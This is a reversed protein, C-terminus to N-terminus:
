LEAALRNTLESMFAIPKNTRLRKLSKYTDDIKQKQNPFLSIVDKKAKIQHYKNKWLFYYAGRGDKFEYYLISRDKKEFSRKTHKVYLTLEKSTATVEFFGSRDMGNAEDRLIRVFNRGLLEFGTVYEKILKITIGGVNANLKLLLEDDFVHYKLDKEFYSQGNYHVTGKTYANEGLFPTLANITRYKQRYVLGQYLDTNENGVSQDFLPYAFDTDDSYQGTCISACLLSFMVIVFSSSNNKTM